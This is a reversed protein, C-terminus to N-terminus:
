KNIIQVESCVRKYDKPFVKVFCSLQDQWTALISKALVSGTLLVHQNLLHLIQTADGDDLPDLDVM